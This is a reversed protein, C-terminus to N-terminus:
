VPAGVDLPTARRPQRKREAAQEILELYRPVVVEESWYQRFAQEGADSLQRRLAPDSQLRHMATLLEAPTSFLLGGGAQEVI